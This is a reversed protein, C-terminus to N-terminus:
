KVWFLTVLIIGTIFGVQGAMFLYHILNDASCTDDSILNAITMGALLIELVLMAERLNLSIEIMMYETNM